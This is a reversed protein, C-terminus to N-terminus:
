RLFSNRQYLFRECEPQARQHAKRETLMWGAVSACNAKGSILTAGVYLGNSVQEQALRVLKTGHRAILQKNATVVSKGAKLARQVWEAAPDLGGILEVVLDVNSFLVDDINDTWEVTDPLWAM